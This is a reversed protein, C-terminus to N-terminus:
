DELFKKTIFEQVKGKALGKKPSIAVDPTAPDAVFYNKGKKFVLVDAEEAASFEETVDDGLKSTVLEAAEEEASEEADDESEEEEEEADDTKAISLEPKGAKKKADALLAEAEALKEEAFCREFKNTFQSLDIDSEFPPDGAKVYTGDNNKHIGVLVRWLKKGAM